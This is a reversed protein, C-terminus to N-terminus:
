NTRGQPQTVHGVAAGATPPTALLVVALVVALALLLPILLLRM